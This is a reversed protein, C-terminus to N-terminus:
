SVARREFSCQSCENRQKACKIFGCDTIKSCEFCKVDRILKTMEKNQVENVGDRINGLQNWSDDLSVTCKVVDGNPRYVYSNLESAYCRNITSNNGERIRLGCKKAAEINEILVTSEKGCIEIDGMDKRSDFVQRIILGFRDDEKFHYSLEEYFELNNTSTESLNIRVGVTCSAASNHIDILNNLIKKYTPKGGLLYRYKDHYIGDLTIQYDVKAIEGLKIVKDVDLCYGNTTIGMLLDINRDDCLDKIRISFDVLKEFELIPEGGFWNLVFCDISPNRSLVELIHAYIKEYLGEDMVVKKHEEYCYVCRFNCDETPMVTVNIVNNNSAYFSCLDEYVMGEELLMRNQFLFEKLESDINSTGVDYIEKFEAFYQIEIELECGTYENVLRFFDGINKVAIYGPM